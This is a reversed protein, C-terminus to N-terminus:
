STLGKKKAMRPLVVLGFDGLSLAAMNLADEIVEALETNTERDAV